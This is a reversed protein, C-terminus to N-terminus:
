WVDVYMLFFFLGCDSVARGFFQLAPRKSLFCFEGPILGNWHSLAFHREFSGHM